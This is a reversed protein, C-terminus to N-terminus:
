PGVSWGGLGGPNSGATGALSVNTVTNTVTILASYGAAPDQKAYYNGGVMLETAPIEPGSELFNINPLYVELDYTKGSTGISPGVVKFNVGVTKRALAAKPLANDLFLLDLKGSITWEHAVFTAVDYDQGAVPVRSIARTMELTGGRVLDAAYGTGDITLFNSAFAGGQSGYTIAAFVLPGNGDQPEAVDVYTPSATGTITNTGNGGMQTPYVNATNGYDFDTRAGNLPYNNPTQHAGYLAVTATVDEGFTLALKQVVCGSTLRGYVHDGFLEEVTFSPAYGRNKNAQFAHRYAAPAHTSDAAQATTQGDVGFLGLLAYYLSETDALWTFEGDYMRDLLLIRHVDFDGDIEKDQPKITPKPTFGKSPMVKWFRHPNTSAIGVNYNSGSQLTVPVAGFVSEICM